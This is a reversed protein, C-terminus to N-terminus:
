REVALWLWFLPDFPRFSIIVSQKPNAPDTRVYRGWLWRRLRRKM